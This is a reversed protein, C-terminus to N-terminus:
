NLKSDVIISSDLNIAESKIAVMRSDSIGVEVSVPKAVSNELIWIEGQTYNETKTNTAKQQRPRPPPGIMFPNSSNKSNTQQQQPNYFIAAVPVLMMNKQSEVKISATANMGPKLLLKENDVLITTEYSTINDTTTAAFNVKEVKAHFEVNPYADVSFAVDQGERVKGIDSESINVVLKMAKLNEALTFLTPTQFNAAVTQGLSVSRELIIGDIPSRIISNELDIKSSQLSTQIQNINARNVKIDAEASLYEMKATQLDLQSPSRGKTAIYLKQQQEYNWKKQELAVKASELSALASQLQAKYGDRTQNLKNPNIEALIQGRKVVDNVDVYLKYITGSIQSGVEVENTPSLSGTASVTQTIDGLIPKITTYSIKTNKQLFFYMIIALCVCILLVVIIFVSLKKRKPTIVRYIEQSTPM